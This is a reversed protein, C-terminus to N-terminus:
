CGKISLRFGQRRRHCDTPSAMAGGAAGAVIVITISTTIMNFGAGTVAVAATTAVTGSIMIVSLGVDHDRWLPGCIKRAHPIAVPRGPCEQGPARAWAPVYLGVPSAPVGL